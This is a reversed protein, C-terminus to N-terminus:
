MGVVDSIFAEVHRTALDRAMGILPRSDLIGGDVLVPWGTRDAHPLPGGGFSAYHTRPLSAHVLPNRGRLVTGYGEDGLVSDVWALREDTLKTRRKLVGKSMGAFGRLSLEQADAPLTETLRWIAGACLDLATIATGCAWRVHALDVVQLPYGKTEAPPHGFVDDDLDALYRLGDVAEMAWQVFVAARQDSWSATVKGFDDFGFAWEHMPM